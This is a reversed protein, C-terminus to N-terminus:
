QEKHYPVALMIDDMFARTKLKNKHKTKIKLFQVHDEM